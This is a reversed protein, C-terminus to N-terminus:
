APVAEATRMHERIRAIYAPFPETETWKPLGLEAAKKEAGGRTEHWEGLEAPDGAAAEDEWRRGRLYVLPAEDYGNRWKESGRKRKVDALIVDATGDLANRRWHEFCKAKDQKRESRPWALWFEDFRAVAVRKRPTPPTEKLEERRKEPRPETVATAHRVPSRLPVAPAVPPTVSEPRGAGREM